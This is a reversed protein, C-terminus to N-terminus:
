WDSKKKVEVKSQEVHRREDVIQLNIDALRKELKKMSRVANQKESFYSFVFTM